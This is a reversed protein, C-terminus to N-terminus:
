RFNFQLHNHITNFASRAANISSCPIFDPYITNRKSDYGRILFPANSNKRSVLFFVAQGVIFAVSVLTEESDLLKIISEENM